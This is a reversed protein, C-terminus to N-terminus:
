APRREMRPWRAPEFEWELKRCVRSWREEMDPAFLFPVWGLKLYTKLAPLRSDDTKLYLRRYGADLLRATVAACVATGLGRGSHEPRAMVWGLVGGGPHMEDPVHQAMASATLHGTNGHEILLFGGPLTRTMYDAVSEATFKEFGAAHALDLYAELDGTRFTRLAYGEPVRVSPPATLREGPWLMQLQQEGDAAV